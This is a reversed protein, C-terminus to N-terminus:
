ASDLLKRVHEALARPAFPKQMFSAGLERREAEGVGHESYGSMLLLRFGPRLARLERALDVGSRGPMVVDSIVLDITDYRRSYVAIAEDAGAASLVRYGGDTLTREILRSLARDDEVLLITETGGVRAAAADQREV